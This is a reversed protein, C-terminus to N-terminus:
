GALLKKNYLNTAVAAWIICVPWTFLLGFGLTVIGIIGSLVIMIIAGWITSYLMGLPGFLVTLLIAIGMSKTSTVVVQKPEENSM